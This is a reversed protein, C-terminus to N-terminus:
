SKAFDAVANFGLRPTIKWDTVFGAKDAIAVFDPRADRYRAHLRANAAYLVKLEPNDPNVGAVAAAAQEVWSSLCERYPMMWKLVFESAPSDPNRRLITLAANELETTPGAGTFTLFWGIESLSDDAVGNAFFTRAKEFDNADVLARWGDGIQACLPLCLFVCWIYRKLM